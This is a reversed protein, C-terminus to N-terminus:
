PEEEVSDSTRRALEPAEVYAHVLRNLVAAMSEGRNRVKEAFVEWYPLDREAVYVTKMPM